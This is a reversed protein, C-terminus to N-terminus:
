KLVKSSYNEHSVIYWVVLDKSLIRFHLGLNIKYLESAQKHHVLRKARVEGREFKKLAQLARNILAPQYTKDNELRTTM